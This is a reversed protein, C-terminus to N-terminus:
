LKQEGQFSCSEWDSGDDSEPLNQIFAGPVGVRCCDITTLTFNFMEPDPIGAIHLLKDGDGACLHSHLEETPKLGKM